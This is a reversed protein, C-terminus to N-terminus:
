SRQGRCYAWWETINKLGLTHVFKKAETYSRWGGRRNETGLWHGWSGSRKFEEYVSDPSRPIDIPIPKYGGSENRIYRFWDKKSRLKLSQAFAAAEQYPRWTLM